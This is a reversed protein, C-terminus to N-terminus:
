WKIYTLDIPFLIYVKLMVSVYISTVLQLEREGAICKEISM